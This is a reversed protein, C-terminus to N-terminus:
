CACPVGISINANFLSKENKAVTVLKCYLFVSIYLKSNLLFIRSTGLSILTLLASLRAKRESVEARPPVLLSVGSM